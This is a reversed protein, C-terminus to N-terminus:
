FLLGVGLAVVVQNASGTRDTIPSSAADGLLRRFSAAGSLAWRRTLAYTLSGSAGVDLIGGEATFAPLGSAAAGEPSVSFYAAQFADSALGVSTRAGLFIRPTLPASYGLSVTGLWGSHVGNVGRVVQTMLRLEDGGRLVDGWTVAGFGGVEISLDRTPLAAIAGSAGASDRGFTLNLVPGFELRRHGVVNLRATIGEVMLYRRGKEVRGGIFPIAQLASAGPYEPVAGVGLVVIGTLPAAREQAAAPRAGGAALLAVLGAVALVPRVRVLLVGLVIMWAPLLYNEAEAVLAVMPTVNRWMGVLGAVAAAIGAVGAWRPFATSRLMALAACLFFLNLLLEGVFEGVFQGLYANLGDFVAVIAERTAPEGSRDLHAALEWHISPWRLLGLAMAFAGLVAFILAARARSPADGRLAAHAGVGAPVLLFPLLGYLAWVARGTAGLARLRPLVTLGEGDLVDPYDFAAALYAFVAMFLVAAVILSWGGLRVAFSSRLVPASV